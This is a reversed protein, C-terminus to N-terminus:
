DDDYLEVLNSNPIKDCYYGLAPNPYIIADPPPIPLSIQTKEGEALMKIQLEGPNYYGHISRHEVDGRMLILNNAANTGGDDLPIRHHVEYDKPARGITRMLEIQEETFGAQSLEASNTVAINKLWNVREVRAFRTREKEYFKRDKKQYDVQQYRFGHLARAGSHHYVLVASKQNDLDRAAQWELLRNNIKNLYANDKKKEFLLHRMFVQLRVRVKESKLKQLMNKFGLGLLSKVEAATRLYSIVGNM